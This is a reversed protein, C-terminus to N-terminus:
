DLDVIQGDEPARMGYKIAKDKIVNIDISSNYKLSLSDRTEYLRDINSKIDIISDQQKQISIERSLLFFASVAVVIIGVLTLASSFVYSPQKIKPKAATKTKKKPEPQPEPKKEPPAIQPAESGPIYENKIKLMEKLEDNM